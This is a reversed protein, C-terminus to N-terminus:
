RRVRIRVGGIVVQQGDQHVGGAQGDPALQLQDVAHKLDGQLAYNRLFETTAEALPRDSWPGERLSTMLHGFASRSQELGVSPELAQRVLRWSEREAQLKEGSRHHTLLMKYDLDAEPGLSAKLAQREALSGPFDGALSRRALEVEGALALEGEFRSLFDTEQGLAGAKLQTFIERSKEWGAQPVVLQHLRTLREADPELDRQPFGLLFRYEESPRDRGPPRPKEDFPDSPDFEPKGQKELGQLGQRLAGAARARLEYPESAPPTASLFGRAFDSDKALDFERAFVSIAEPGFAARTIGRQLYDFMERSGEHGLRPVLADHLSGLLEAASKLDTRPSGVLLRYDLMAEKVATTRSRFGSEDVHKKEVETLHRLAALRDAYPEKTDVRLAKRAEAADEFSSVFEAIELLREREERYEAQDFTQPLLKERFHILAKSAVEPKVQRLRLEKYEGILEGPHQDAKLVRMLNGYSYVGMRTLQEGKLGPNLGAEFDRLEHITALCEELPHRPSAWTLGHAYFQKENDNLGPDSVIVRHHFEALELLKRSPQPIQGSSLDLKERAVRGYLSVGLMTYRQDTLAHYAGSADLDNLTDDGRHFTLGISGLDRLRRALPDQDLRPVSQGLAFFEVTELDALSNVPYMGKSGPAQAWLSRVDEEDRELARYAGYVGVPRSANNKLAEGVSYDSRGEAELIRFQVGAQDLKELRGALAPNALRQSDGALFLSEADKLDQFSHIKVQKVVDKDVREFFSDKDAAAPNPLSLTLRGLTSEPYDYTMLHHELSEATYDTTGWSRPQNPDGIASFRLGKAELEDLLTRLDAAATASLVGSLPGPIAQCSAWLGLKEVESWLPRLTTESAAKVPQMLQLDNVSGPAYGDGPTLSAAAPRRASEARYNPQGAPHILM